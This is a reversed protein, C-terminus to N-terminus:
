LKSFFSIDNILAFLFILMIIMFGILNFRYFIKPKLPKGRIIQALNFLIMGGDVAPIPLLNSFFLAVSLLSILRLFSIVAALFGSQMAEKTYDGITYTIRLPGSLSKAGGKFILGLSKITLWLVDFSEGLGRYLAKFPDKVRNKIEIYPFEIGGQAYGNKDRLVPFETTTESGSRRYTLDASVKSRELYYLFDQMHTIPKGDISVLVDGEALGAIEAASDAIVSVVVPDVMAYIGIFGEGDPSVGPVIRLAAEEGNRDVKIKLEKGPAFAIAEKIDTYNDITKGNIEKIIDGTQMGGLDAPNTKEAAYDSSLAIKAGYTYSTYGIMLVIAMIISASLLNALPGCLYVFIRKLPSVSFMSGKENEFTESGTEVAKKFVDEGSMKCYGGVPFVSLRYETGRWNKKLFPKGWGLSFAEVHIGVAKCALFHGLEHLFVVIGLGLLGIIITQLVSLFESLM